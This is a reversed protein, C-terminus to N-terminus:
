LYKIVKAPIVDFAWEELDKVANYWTIIEAREAETLTEVGFNVNGKLIDFASFLKKRRQRFVNKREEPLNSLLDLNEDTMLKM